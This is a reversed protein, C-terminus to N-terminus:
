RQSEAALARRLKHLGSRIRTKITGLPQNLRAAAEAHTLGGFFTMEIAQREDPTLAALAARLAEGQERLELADHPDAAVEAPLQGDGSQSRKRRREFRLRDIARSRAQNM